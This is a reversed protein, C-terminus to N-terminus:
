APPQQIYVTNWFYVWQQKSMNRSDRLTKFHCKVCKKPALPQRYTDTEDEHM